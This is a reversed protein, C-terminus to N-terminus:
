VRAPSTARAPSKVWQLTSALERGIGAITDRFRRPALGLAKGGIGAFWDTFFAYLAFTLAAACIAATMLWALPKFQSLAPLVMVPAAFFAAYTLVDILRELVLSGVSVSASFGNRQWLLFARAPEGLRLPLINNIMFAIVTYDFLRKKSGGGSQPLMIRWRIARLYLTLFGLGISALIMDPRTSKLERLLQAPDAGKLFVYLGAGVIALGLLIQVIKGPKM